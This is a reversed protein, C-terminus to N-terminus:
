WNLWRLQGQQDPSHKILSRESGRCFVLLEGTNHDASTLIYWTGDTDQFMGTDSYTYANPPVTVAAGHTVYGGVMQTSLLAQINRDVQGYIWFSGNPKAIKPRWLWQISSQKGLNTWNLMDTSSYLYPSVGSDHKTLSCVCCFIFFPYMSDAASQGIWYFTDGRQVIQGGHADIKKGSTDTWVAGPVIWSTAGLVGLSSALIPILYQLIM